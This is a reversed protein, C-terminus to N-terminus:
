RLVARCPAGDEFMKLPLCLLEYNGPKVDKMYIGELIVVDNKMLKRHVAPESSGFKEISLYDIGVLKVGHEVLKEAAEMSLYTFDRHFESYLESNGTKFLVRKEHTDPIDEANIADGSVEIVTAPGVVSELDVEDAKKGDPLMHYPADFHTGTHTEMLVRMIHVNDKEHTRYEYEEYAANGPYVILEKKLPLSIDIM